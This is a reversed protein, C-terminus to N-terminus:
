PKCPTGFQETNTPESVWLFVYSVINTLADVNAPYVCCYTCVVCILEFTRSRMYIILGIFSHGPLHLTCFQVNGLLM